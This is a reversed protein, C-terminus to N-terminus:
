DGIFQGLVGRNRGKVEPTEGETVSKGEQQNKKLREAEAKADVTPDDGAPLTTLKEITSKENRQKRFAERNLDQRSSGDAEVAGANRLFAAEANSTPGSSKARPAPATEQPAEGEEGFVLAKADERPMINSDGEAGDSPPRLSFEPPVNLPPRSVVKFEDPAKKNIGLTDKVGSGCATLLAASSLFLITRAKM